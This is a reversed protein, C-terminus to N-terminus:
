QADCDASVCNKGDNECERRGRACVCVHERFEFHRWLPPQLERRIIARNGSRILRFCFNGIASIVITTYMLCPLFELVRALRSHRSSGVNSTRRTQGVLNRFREVTVHELCTVKLPTTFNQSVFTKKRRQWASYRRFRSIRQCQIHENLPLYGLVTQKSRWRPLLYGAYNPTFFSCERLVLPLQMTSFFPAAM